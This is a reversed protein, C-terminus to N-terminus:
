RAHHVIIKKVSAREAMRNRHDLVKPFRKPDVEDQELWRALTFLYCDAVTFDAGMVWPGVFMANEIVEFCAAMTEPVKRRLDAIAAPDDAWRAARRNHSHAVHVTSSLYNNFAQMRAFAFPDDLPALQAKPFSQAIYALIAPNESLHGRETALAPVRGNPNIKLYEPRRQEDAALDVKALEYSAGAEELAIHAALASSSPAYFLKLM